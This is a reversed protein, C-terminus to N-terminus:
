KKTIIEIIDRHKLKHDKGIIQKTRIDVGKIFNKGFDTHLAYALDIAKSEKPLLYCDPLTNGKADQLKATPVPYVAIYKLLEFVAANLVKQVGTSGNNKLVNEKIFELGKKQKENLKAESLIEFDSDGSLYKIMGHKAAEKLALESESSVGFIKYEPFQEKLKKLNEQGQPIDIKNAAIIMPKTRKRLGIAIEKLQDDNWSAIEGPKLNLKSLTQKVINDDVKLGSFQTAIAKIADAHEQQVKRAFKIWGKSLISYYWLDIEEELFQELQTLLM